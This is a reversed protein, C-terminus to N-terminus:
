AKPTAASDKFEANESSWTHSKGCAPCKGITGNATLEDFGAKDTLVGTTIHTGTEPCKIVVTGM